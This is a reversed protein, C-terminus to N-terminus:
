SECGCGGEGHAHGHSLEAATAPRRAILEVDFTLDVGALPHNGDLIVEDGEVGVVTVVPAFQDDGAQFQDGAKLDGEVPIVVRLVRQVQAEDREGYAQAAPVQLRAKAGVALAQLQAELGEIIQSAGELFTIPDGGQSTDLLQGRPDRLSYHFTVAHRPM